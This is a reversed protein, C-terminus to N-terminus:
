NSRLRTISLINGVADYSYAIADGSNAVAGVLRGLEDYSYSVPGMFTQGPAAVAAMLISLTVLAKLCSTQV